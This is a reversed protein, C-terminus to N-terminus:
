RKFKVVTLLNDIRWETDSVKILKMKGKLITTENEESLTQKSKSPTQDKRPNNIKDSIIDQYKISLKDLQEKERKTLKDKDVPMLAEGGDAHGYTFVDLVYGGSLGVIFDSQSKDTFKLIRDYDGKDLKIYPRHVINIIENFDRKKTKIKQQNGLM